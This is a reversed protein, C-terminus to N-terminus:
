SRLLKSVPQRYVKISPIAALVMGAGILVLVLVVEKSALTVRLILGTEASIIQSIFWAVAWGLVLGIASGAAVMCVIELWVSLFLYKRPAGLARLVGLAQRKQQLAAYAALLVAGVVLVQTAVALASMVTTTDGLLAYLEVLVEAM